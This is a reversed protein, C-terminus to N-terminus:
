QPVFVIMEVRSPPLGKENDPPPDIGLGIPKVSRSFSFWGMKHIKHNDKLYNAVVDSQAQTMAQAASPSLETRPDIFAAIVVDSGKPKLGNLWAAAENLRDRGADTLVARGPEFLEQSQVIRRHRQHTPRILTATRDEVYSRVFPLKKIADADQKISHATDQSREMFKRTEEIASVVNAYARDDQLLKGITGQGERIDALLRQSQALLDALQPAQRAAIASGDSISGSEARGPDIEIVKAGIMGEQVITASADAFVLSQFRRDLRLHLMMTQDSQSGGPLDIASVVGADLGRVRVPAGVNLGQLNSFGVRLSFSDSWLRQREGVQILGWVGLVFALLVLIGLLGAQWRTLSRTM